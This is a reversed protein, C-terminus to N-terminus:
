SLLPKIEGLLSQVSLWVEEIRSTACWDSVSALGQEKDLYPGSQLTTDVIAYRWRHCASFTADAMELQLLSSLATKLHEGVVQVDDDLHELTWGRRTHAVLSTVDQRRGPKSSNVSIWKIPGEMVKAAIWDYPWVREFGVMLAFCGQMSVSQLPHGAKIRKGFLHLTQSPPATSIVWDFRGLPEGSTSVLDWAGEQQRGIPAVETTLRLSVHSQVAEAMTKCLANMGPVPVLHTEFWIRDKCHGDALLDVVRGRWPAVLGQHLLPKLYSQFAKTRATFCQAGHDFHFPDAYRTSMRGGVGRAKEFVTVHAFGHLAEALLLGSYGAGIIAIQKTM